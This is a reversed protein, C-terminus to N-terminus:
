SVTRSKLIRKEPILILYSGDLQRAHGLDEM